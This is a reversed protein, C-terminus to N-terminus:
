CTGKHLGGGSGGSRWGGCFRTSCPARLLLHICLILLRITSHVRIRVKLERQLPADDDHFVVDMVLREAGDDYEPDFDQLTYFM